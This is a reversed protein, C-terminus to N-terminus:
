RELGCGRWRVRMPVGRQCFRTSRAVNLVPSTHAKLLDRIKPVTERQVLFLDEILPKLVGWRDSYKPTNRLQETVHEVTPTDMAENKQLLTPLLTIKEKVPELSLEVIGKNGHLRM